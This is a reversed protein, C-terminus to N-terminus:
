KKAPDITKPAKEPEPKEPPPEASHPSRYSTKPPCNLDSEKAITRFPPNSAYLEQYLEQLKKLRNELYAKRDKYLSKNMIVWCTRKYKEKLIPKILEMGKTTLRKSGAVSFVLTDTIKRNNFFRFGEWGAWAAMWVLLLIFVRNKQNNKKIWEFFKKMFYLFFVSLVAIILGLLVEKM